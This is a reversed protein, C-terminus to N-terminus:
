RTGGNNIRTAYARVFDTPELRSLCLRLMEQAASRDGSEYLAVALYFQLEPRSTAAVGGREFFKVAADWRSLRYAIEAALLQVEVIQPQQDALLQTEDFANELESRTGHRLVDRARDLELRVVQAADPQPITEDVGGPSAAEEQAAAMDGGDQIAESDPVQAIAPAGELNEEDGTPAPVVNPARREKRLDRGLQRFPSSQREEPSLESLLLDADAWAQSAIQCRLKAAIRQTRLEPQQCRELDPLAGECM